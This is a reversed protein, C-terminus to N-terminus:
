RATPTVRGPAGARPEARGPDLAREDTERLAPNARHIVENLEEGRGPSAWAWSTSCSRSASATPSACHHRQDSRPRGALQHQRGASPARGRRRGGRDDDLAQAGASGPECEVFREGILGQLRITCKADRKFPTFAEDDIRLTVAARNEETVDMASVVGVPAGAIKVDEGPVLTSANDFIARVFYQDKTDDRDRRAARDRDRDRPPDGRVARHLRAKEHAPPHTRPRAAPPPSPPRATPRLSCRPGLAAACSGASTARSASPHAAVGRAHRREPSHIRLGADGPRLPRERRLRRGGPRVQHVLRRPRAHLLRAYEVVPQTRDLARIARPFVSGTLQALRPQKKTLEILDNDAGPRRILTRLDAITPRADAVLPRLRRLFPALDRTAPKSEEVLLDLDDLTARLNVFTTNAKRFTDPLLELTRQLSTSEAAVAGFARNANSVLGALDDRREALASVTTAGDRVFRELMAQDLALEATLRTTSALFPAFYEISEAADPGRADYQTGSGRILNRLGARTKADLTNFVVDLDVAATTDEPGIEGGDAIEPASDPGPALSVYRNAIGSLSTARITAKTGQHLPALDPEIEMSVLAQASDDLEIETVTGVPRGSVRVQNGPVLQGANEFVARVTYAEGRGFLALAILAM